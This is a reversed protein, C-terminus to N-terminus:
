RRGDRPRTSAPDPAVLELFRADGRLAKLDPDRRAWARQRELGGKDSHELFDRELYFLSAEVDGLLAHTCALNYYTGPSDTADRLLSRAEAAAGERALYCALVIKNFETPDLAVGEKAYRAAVDPKGKVVNENVARSILSQARLRRELDLWIKAQATRAEASPSGLIKVADSDFEDENSKRVQDLRDLSKQVYKEAIEPENADMAVGARELCGDVFTILDSTSSGLAAREIVPELLKAASEMDGLTSRAIQGLDRPFSSVPITIQVHVPSIPVSPVRGMDIDDFPDRLNQWDDRHRATVFEHPNVDSLINLIEIGAELGEAGRGRKPLVTAIMTMAGIESELAPDFNWNASLGWPKGNLLLNLIGNKQRPNKESQVWLGQLSRATAQFVRQSFLEYAESLRDAARPGEKWRNVLVNLASLVRLRAAQMLLNEDDTDTAGYERRGQVFDYAVELHAEAEAPRRDCLDCIALVARAMARWESKLAGLKAAEADLKRAAARAGALDAITLLSYKTARWACDLADIRSWGDLAKIYDDDRRRFLLRQALIDFGTSAGIGETPHKGYKVLTPLVQLDATFGLCALWLQRDASPAREMSPALSLLEPASEPAAALARLAKERQTADGERVLAGLGAITSRDAMRVLWKLAADRVQFEPDRALKLLIAGRREIASIAFDPRGAFNAFELRVLPHPDGGNSEALDLEAVTGCERLLRAAMERAIAPATSFGDFLKRVARPGASKVAAYRAARDLPDPASLDGISPLDGPASQAIQLIATLAATAIWELAIV